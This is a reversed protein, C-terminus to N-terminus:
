RFSWSGTTLEIGRSTWSARSDARTAASSVRRTRLMETKAASPTTIPTAAITTVIMM